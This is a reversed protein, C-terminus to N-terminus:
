NTTINKEPAKSRSLAQKDKLDKLCIIVKMLKGSNLVFSQRFMKKQRNASYFQDM